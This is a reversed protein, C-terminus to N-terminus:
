KKFYIVTNEMKSEWFDLLLAERCPLDPNNILPLISEEVQEKTVKTKDSKIGVLLTNNVLFMRYFPSAKRKGELRDLSAGADILELWLICEYLFSSEGRGREQQLKKALQVLTQAQLGMKEEKMKKEIKYYSGLPGPTRLLFEGVYLLSYNLGIFRFLGQKFPAGHHKIEKPLNPPPVPFRGGGEDDVYFGISKGRGM